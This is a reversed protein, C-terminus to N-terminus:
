QVFKKFCGDHNWLGSNEYFEGQPFEGERQSGAEGLKTLKSLPSWPNGQGGGGWRERLGTISHPDGRGELWWCCVSPLAEHRQGIRKGHWAGFFLTGHHYMYHPHVVPGEAQLPALLTAEVAWGPGVVAGPAVDTHLHTDREGAQRGM